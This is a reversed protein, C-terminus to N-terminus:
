LTRFAAQVEPDNLLILGLIGLPVGGFLCPGFCPVVALGCAIRALGLSKFARMRLAGILIVAHIPLLLVNCGLRAAMQGEASMGELARLEETTGTVLLVLSYVLAVLYLVLSISSLCALVTAVVSLNKLKSSSSTRAM